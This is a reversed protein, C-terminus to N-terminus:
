GRRLAIGGVAADHATRPRRAKILGSKAQQAAGRRKRRRGISSGIRSQAERYGDDESVFSSQSLLTKRADHLTESASLLAFTESPRVRPVRAFRSHPKLILGYQRVCDERSRISGGSAHTRNPATGCDYIRPLRLESGTLFARM